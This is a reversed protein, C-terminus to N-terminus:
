SSTQCTLCLSCRATASRFGRVNYVACEAAISGGLDFVVVDDLGSEDSIEVNWPEKICSGILSIVGHPAQPNNKAAELCARIQLACM